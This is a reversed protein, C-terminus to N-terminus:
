LCEAGAAIETMSPMAGGKIEDVRDAGLQAEFCAEQEASLDAFMGIDLGAEELAEAQAQTGDTTESSQTTAAPTSQLFTAYTRVGWMDSYWVYLVLLVLCFFIVGLTVFFYTLITRM